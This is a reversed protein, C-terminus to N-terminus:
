KWVGFLIPVKCLHKLLIPNTKLNSSDSTGASLGASATDVARHTLAAGM